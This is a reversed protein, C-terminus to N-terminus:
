VLAKKLTVTPKTGGKSAVKASKLGGSRVTVTPRANTGGGGASVAYKYASGASKTGGGSRGGGRRAVRGKTFGGYSQFKSADALLNDIKEQIDSKELDDLTPDQLQQQLNQVLGDAIKFWEGTDKSKKAAQLKNYGLSYDYSLKSTVQVDGDKKRRLVVDGVQKITEDSKKFTDKAIEMRADALNDKTQVSADGDLTYAFRGNSLRQLSYGQGATKKLSEIEKSTALENEQPTTGANAKVTASKTPPAKESGYTQVGVGFTGPVNMAIGKPLSNVNRATEWTQQATLPTFLKGAESALNIPNGVQDTGRLAKTGYAVVPNEKNELFQYALDLRSPKGFGRDPGLTQLEGTVSNIKQGTALQSALRMNQQLGGLIDYRTDGVKIKAFDASRPDWIVTAGGAAALGLITTAISAFSATSQLALKRAMPDLRAYYAPNLIDIRSKWLRPSFLAQSLLGAHKDLMKGSGRGSASNIFKALSDLAKKDLKAGATKSENVVKDFVDARLKTLFGTYARNSAGVVRGVVLKKAVDTELLNKMFQEETGTIGRAGEVALKHQKMLSYTPRQSIEYMSKEYAGASRFYGFMQKFASGFQKPYRSGLVAGQRLPASLDATAMAARPTSLAEQVIDRWNRGLKDAQGLLERTAKARELSEPMEAIRKASTVLERALNTDIEGGAKKSAYRLIGEPTTKKFTAYAQVAQGLKTGDVGLKNGLQVAAEIDGKEVAERLLLNGTAVDHASTLQQKTAIRAFATSPDQNIEKAARALTGKNTIPRYGPISKVVEEATVNGKTNRAINQAFGRVKTGKGAVQTPVKVPTPPTKATVTPLAPSPKFAATLEANGKAGKTSPKGIKNVKRARPDSPLMEFNEGINSGITGKQNLRTRAKVAAGAVPLGGGLVGGSVGGIAGGLAAQKIVDQISANQSMAQGGGYAAGFGAGQKLGTKAGALVKPLLKTGGLGAQAVKGVPIFGAPGELLGTVIDGVGQKIQGQGVKVAGGGIKYPSNIFDELIGSGFFNGVNVRPANQWVQPKTLTDAFSSLASRGLNFQPAQNQQVFRQVVQPNRLVGYNKPAQQVALNARDLNAQAIRQAGENQPTIAEWISKGINKLSLGM